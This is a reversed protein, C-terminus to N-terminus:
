AVIKEVRKSLFCMFIAIALVSPKVGTTVIATLVTIDKELLM